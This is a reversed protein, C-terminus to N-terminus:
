DLEVTIGLKNLESMLREKDIPKTVYGDCGLTTANLISKVDSLGSIMVIKAPASKAAANDKEKARIKTLVEHGAIDPLKIDLCILNFPNKAELAQSFMTVAEQGSSALSCDGFRKLMSLLINQDSSSDDAILIRM